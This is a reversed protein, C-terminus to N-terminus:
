DSTALEWFTDAADAFAIARVEPLPTVDFARMVSSVQQRGRELMNQLSEDLPQTTYLVWSTRKQTVIAGVPEPEPMGESLSPKIGTSALFVSIIGLSDEDPPSLWVTDASVDSDYKRLECAPIVIQAVRVFPSEPLQWRRMVRSQVETFRQQARNAYERTFGVQCWGDRHYSVKQIGGLTRVALYFDSKKNGWLRWCSSRPGQPSGVIWRIANSKTM